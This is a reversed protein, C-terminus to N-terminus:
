DEVVQSQEPRSAVTLYSTDFVKRKDKVIHRVGKYHGRRVGLVEDVIVREDIAASALAPGDSSEGVVSSASLLAQTQTLRIQEM